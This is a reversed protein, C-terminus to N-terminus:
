DGKVSLKWKNYSKILGFVAFYNIFNFIEM